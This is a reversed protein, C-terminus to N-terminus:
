SVLEEFRSLDPIELLPHDLVVHLNAMAVVYAHHLLRAAVPLKIRKLTTGVQANDKATREWQPKSDEALLALVARARGAREPWEDHQTAFYSPVKYPSQDISVLAGRCGIGSRAAEDFGQILMRRRPATTNDYLVNIVRFLALVEGLVPTGLRKIGTWNMGASANVVIIEDVGEFQSAADVWRRRRSELGLAWQEGMNDYVGGDLLAMLRASETGQRFGHRSTRYWRVPFGVPFAASAQVAQDLRLNGPEGWGFRYSCVFQGSFYVHEGAHMDTACIVHNLGDHELDSLLSRKGSPSFLTHAYASGCVAGRRGFWLFWLVIGIAFASWRSLPSVPAWHVAVLLGAGMILSSVYVWTIWSAWLTGRQTIQSALATATDHFEEGNMDRYNGSQGVFANTISGGSVSSISTVEKHKEADHLYMLVGLGFLSARHGGGSIAISVQAM